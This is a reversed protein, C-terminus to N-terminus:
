IRVRVSNKFGVLEGTPPIESKSVTEKARNYLQAVQIRLDNLVSKKQAEAM